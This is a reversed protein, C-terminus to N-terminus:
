KNKKSEATGCARQPDKQMTTGKSKQRTLDKEEEEVACGWQLDEDQTYRKGLQWAIQARALEVGLYFAHGPDDKVQLQPYFAFPDTGQLLGDRNFVFIGKPAIKIRYNPDKINESLQIIEQETDTFPRREHSVLLDATFDRPLSNDDRAAFMMRRAIDAEKIARRAHPSVETALVNTINLESIIGFLLANIGSTDADTLETLNGVGMMMPAEPYKQRLTHYRVISETFGFHIPDLIPDAIWPKGLKDMAEMARELSELPGLPVLVPIADTEKALDITKESLSLLYDAGAKSARRLDDMSMSDVSVKFGNEHLAAIAEEMLPFKEEPLCGIDIVNAGAQRYYNARELIGAIDRQPADVIEAFINVDYKSLDPEKRAKGFFLPLDKIEEPGRVVEIGLLKSLEALDGRCRGPVMIQKCGAYDEPKLRRAIMKDTMLAAVSLGLQHIKYEFPLPAMEHLVKEVSPQALKGTLFLITEAM